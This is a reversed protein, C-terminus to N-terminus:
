NEEGEEDVDVDEEDEQERERVEDAGSDHSEDMEEVDM